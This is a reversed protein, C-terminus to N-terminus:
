GIGDRNDKGRTKINTKDSYQTYYVESLAINFNM